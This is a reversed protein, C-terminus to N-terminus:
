YIQYTTLTHIVCSLLEYTSLLYRFPLPPLLTVVCEFKQRLRTAHASCINFFTAIFALTTPAKSGIPSSIFFGTILSCATLLLIPVLYKRDQADCYQASSSYRRNIVM